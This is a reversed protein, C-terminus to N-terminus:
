SLDSRNTVAILSIGEALKPVIQIGSSGIGICAVRKDAFKYSSDWRASHMLRGRFSEIGEISPWKWNSIELFM